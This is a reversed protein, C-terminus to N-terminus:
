TPSGSGAPCRATSRCRRSRGHASSCTASTSASSRRTSRGKARSSSSPIARRTPPRRLAAEARGL